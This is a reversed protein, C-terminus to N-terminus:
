SDAPWVGRRWGVGISDVAQRHPTASSLAIKRCCTHWYQAVFQRDSPLSRPRHTRGVVGEFLDQGLRTPQGRVLPLAQNGVKLRVLGSRRALASPPGGHLAPESPGTTRVDIDGVNGTALVFVQGLQRRRLRSARRGRYNFGPAEEARPGDRGAATGAGRDRACRASRFRVDAEKWRHSVSPGRAARCRTILARPVVHCSAWSASASNSPRAERGNPTWPTAIPRRARSGLAELASPPSLRGSAAAGGRHARAM